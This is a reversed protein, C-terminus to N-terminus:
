LYTIFMPPWHVAFTNGHFVEYPQFQSQKAWRIKGSRRYTAIYTVKINSREM